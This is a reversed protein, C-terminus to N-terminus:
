KCLMKVHLSECRWQIGENRHVTTTIVLQGHQPKTIDPISPGLHMKDSRKFTALLKLGLRM